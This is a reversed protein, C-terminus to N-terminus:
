DVTLVCKPLAYTVQSRCVQGICLPANRCSDCCYSSFSRCPVKGVRGLVFLTPFWGQGRGLNGYCLSISPLTISYLFFTPARNPIIVFTQNLFIYPIWHFHPLCEISDQIFINFGCCDGTNFYIAFHQCFLM